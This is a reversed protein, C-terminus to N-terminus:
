EDKKEKKPFLFVSIILLWVGVNIFVDAFNFVPFKFILIRIYDTVYGDFFREVTNSLIGAFLFSYAQVELMTFSKINKLIYRVLFLLVILSFVALIYNADKFISFAAGTNKLVLFEFFDNQLFLNMQEYHLILYKVVFCIVFYAISYELWFFLNFNLKKKLM